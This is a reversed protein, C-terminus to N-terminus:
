SKRRSLLIFHHEWAKLFDIVPNIRNEKQFTDRPGFCKFMYFKNCVDEDQYLLVTCGDMTNVTWLVTNKFQLQNVKSPGRYHHRCDDGLPKLSAISEILGSVKETRIKPDSWLGIVDKVFEKFLPRLSAPYQNRRGNLEISSANPSRYHNLFRSKRFETASMGFNTPTLSAKPNSDNLFALLVKVVLPLKQKEPAETKPTTITALKPSQNSSM